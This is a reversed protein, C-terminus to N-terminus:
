YGWYPSLWQDIAKLLFRWSFLLAVPCAIKLKAKRTPSGVLRYAGEGKRFWDHLCLDILLSKWTRKMWKALSFLGWCSSKFDFGYQWTSAPVNKKIKAQSIGDILVSLIRRWVCEWLRSARRFVNSTYLGDQSTIQLLAQCNYHEKKVIFLEM